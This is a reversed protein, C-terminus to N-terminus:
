DRFDNRQLKSSGLRFMGIEVRLNECAQCVKDGASAHILQASKLAIRLSLIENM